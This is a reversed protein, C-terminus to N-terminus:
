PRELRYNAPAYPGSESRVDECLIDLYEDYFMARFHECRALHTPAFGQLWASRGLSVLAGGGTADWRVPDADLNAVEEPTFAFAQSAVFLLHRIDGGAHDLRPPNVYDAAVLTSGTESYHARRLEPGRGDHHFQASLIVRM